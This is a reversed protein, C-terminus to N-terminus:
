KNEDSRYKGFVNRQVEEWSIGEVKGSEIEEARREMEAVFEPDNWHAGAKTGYAIAEEEVMFLMNELEEESAKDVYEHLKKKLEEKDM